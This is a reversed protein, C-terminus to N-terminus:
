PNFRPRRRQLRIKNKVMEAVLSAGDLAKKVMEAVLSAGEQAMVLM